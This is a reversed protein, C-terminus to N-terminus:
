ATLGDRLRRALDARCTDRTTRFPGPHLTDALHGARAVCRPLVEDAEVVEDLFGAGLAGQPDFIHAHQVAPLFWRKSIRDRVLEVGFEPVSMGIAVENLGLKFQGEAGIRYDACTLLIAGMALAHGTVGLVVPIPALYLRLGFDAGTALLRRADDRNDGTMVALDFGACFRGERGIIVAAKAEAEARDLARNLSELATFSLANAKSDDFRLVAVDGNLDFQVVQDSM